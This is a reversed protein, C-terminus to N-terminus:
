DDQFVSPQGMVSVDNFFRKLLNQSVRQRYEASARMDSIPQFDLPLKTLAVDRTADNWPLSLLVSETERARRPVAALGGYCLRADLVRDKDLRIAFAAFVSSIDQDFRKAVKYARFVLNEQRRPIVVSFVFEGSKLDKKQYGLYFDELRLERRQGHSALKVRAGLAILCPMSDGIPSGNAINGCLTGSNRIGPSAFRRVVQSLEPYEELLVEFADALSVAACIEIAEGSRHVSKLDPLNGIYIGCASIRAM